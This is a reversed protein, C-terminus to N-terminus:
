KGNKPAKDAGEKVPPELMADLLKNCLLDPEAVYSRPVHVLRFRFVSGIERISHLLPLLDDNNCRWKDNIQNVVMESDSYIVPDVLDASWCMLLAMLVAEYEAENNTRRGLGRAYQGILKKNKYIMVAAAGHGYKDPNGSGRSAGDVFAEYIM